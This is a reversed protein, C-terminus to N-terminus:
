TVNNAIMNSDFFNRLRDGAKGDSNGMLRDLTNKQGRNLKSHHGDFNLTDMIVEKLEHSTKPVLVGDNVQHTHKIIQKEDSSFINPVITPLGAAISELIATTNFGIVLSTKKLLKHGVGETIFEINAPLYYLNSSKKLLETQEDAMSAKAKCIFNIKPNESALEIITRNVIKIMKSWTVISGDKMKIGPIFSGNKLNTYIPGAIPEILYYLVTNLGHSKNDLRYQHSQDLRGCGVVHIKKKDIIGSKIFIEKYQKNYVAISNGSYKVVSNKYLDVLTNINAPSWACEKHLTIFNVETESCANALEREVSYIVNFQVISTIGFIRDFWDLVKILHKKYREKDKEIQIDNTHYDISTVREQINFFNASLVLIIRPLFLVSYSAKEKLYAAEIDQVGASKALVVLKKRGIIKSRINLSPRMALRWGIAVFLPLNLYLGIRVSTSSILLQLFSATKKIKNKM